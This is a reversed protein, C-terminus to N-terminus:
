NEKSDKGGENRRYKVEGVRYMEGLTDMLPPRIRWHGSGCACTSPASRTLNGGTTPRPVHQLFCTPLRELQYFCTKATERQDCRERTVIHSHFITCLLLLM